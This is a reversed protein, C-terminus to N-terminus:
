SLHDKKVADSASQPPSAFLRRHLRIVGVGVFKLPYYVMLAMTALVFLGCLFAVIRFLFDPVGPLSNLIMILGFFFVALGGVAIFRNRRNGWIQALLYIWADLM